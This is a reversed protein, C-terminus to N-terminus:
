FLNLSTGLLKVLAFYVFAAIVLVSGAVEFFRPRGPACAVIIAAAVLSPLIGVREVLVGFALVATTVVLIPRWAFAEAPEVASQRWASVFQVVGIVALISALLFPFAGPGVRSGIAFPHAASMLGGVCGLVMFLVGVIIDRSRTTM